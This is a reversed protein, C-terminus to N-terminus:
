SDTSIMSSCWGSLTSAGLPVARYVAPTIASARRAAPQPGIGSAVVVASSPARPASTSPTRTCATRNRPNTACSSIRKPDAPSVRVRRWSEKSRDENM